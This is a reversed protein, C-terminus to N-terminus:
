VPAGAGTVTDAREPVPRDAARRGKNPMSLDPGRQGTKNGTTIRLATDPRRRRRAHAPAGHFTRKPPWPRSPRQHLAVSQRVVPRRGACVSALRSPRQTTVHPGDQFVSWPTSCIHSYEPPLGQHAIFTIGTKSLTATLDENAPHM